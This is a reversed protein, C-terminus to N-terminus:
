VERILRAQLERYEERYLDRAVTLEICKTLASRLETQTKTLEARLATADHDDQKAPKSAPAETRPV